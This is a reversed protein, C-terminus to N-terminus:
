KILKIIKELAAWQPNLIAIVNDPAFLLFIIIAVIFLITCIILLTTISDEDTQIYFDRLEKQEKTLNKSYNSSIKQGLNYRQLRKVHILLLFLTLLLFLVIFILYVSNEIIVQRVTLEFGSKILTKGTTEIFDLIRKFLEDM